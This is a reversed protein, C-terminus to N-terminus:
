HQENKKKPPAAKKPVVKQQERHVNHFRDNRVVHTRWDPNSRVWGHFRELRVSDCVIWVDGPGLYYYQGNVVGVYEEGDWVYDAPVTVLPPPPAEVVPAPAIVVAPFELQGDPGVVCGSLALGGVALSLLCLHKTKM